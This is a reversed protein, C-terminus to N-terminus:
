GTATDQPPMLRSTDLTADTLSHGSTADARQSTDQHPDVLPPTQHSRGLTDQPPMLWNATDALTADALAHGPPLM